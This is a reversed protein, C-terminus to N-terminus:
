ARVPSWVLVEQRKSFHLLDPKGLAFGQSSAVFNEPILAEALQLSWPTHHIEGRFFKGNPAQAYLCYRETLFHELSGSRPHFSEGTGRYSAHFLARPSAPHTRQSRYEIWGARTTCSMRARFYPLHFWSRATHVALASAADLSFFWVGPKGDKTVYTRLNLEPFHSTGPIPPAFRFRVAAMRFPVVAVWAEGKYTDLELGVPVLPRLCEPPIRWHIFLLDLWQQSM